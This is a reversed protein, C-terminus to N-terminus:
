RASFFVAYRDRALDPTHLAQGNLTLLNASPDLTLRDNMLIRGTYVTTATTMDAVWVSGDHDAVFDMRDAGEVRKVAELPVETPRITTETAPVGGDTTRLVPREASFFIRHNGRSVDQKTISQSNVTMLNKQPDVVIIDGRNAPASYLVRHQDEDTVWIFGDRPATYEVRDKGEGGVLATAPVGDPRRIAIDSATRPEPPLAATGPLFFVKHNTRNVDKDLVVQGNLMLKGTDPDLMVRDGTAVPSSFLINNAGETVWITGPDPATYVLRQDGEVKNMASSPVDRPRQDTACGILLASTLGTVCLIGFHRSNRM